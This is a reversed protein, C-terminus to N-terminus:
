TDLRRAEELTMLRVFPQLNLCGIAGSVTEFTRVNRLTATPSECYSIMQWPDSIEFGDERDVRIYYKGVDEINM